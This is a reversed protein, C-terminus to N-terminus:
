NVVTSLKLNAFKQPVLRSAMAKKLASKFKCMDTNLYNLRWSHCVLADIPGNIKYSISKV